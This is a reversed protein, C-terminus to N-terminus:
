FSYKAGVTIGTLDYEFGTNTNTEDFYEVWEAYGSLDSTFDVEAGLGYSFSTESIGTSFNNAPNPDTYDFSADVSVFGALGYVSFKEAVPVYGVGYIGAIEDVETSLDGPGESNTDDSIGVGVRLEAALNDAIGYGLRGIGFTPDYDSSLSEDEYSGMGFGGGIYTEGEEVAFAPAAVGALAFALPLTKNIHM